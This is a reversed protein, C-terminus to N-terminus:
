ATSRLMTPVLSQHNHDIVLSRNDIEDMLPVFTELTVYEGCPLHFQDLLVLGYCLSADAYVLLGFPSIM